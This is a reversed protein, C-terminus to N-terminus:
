GVVEAAGLRGERALGEWARGNPGVHYVSGDSAYVDAWLHFGFERRDHHGQAVRVADRFTACDIERIEPARAAAAGALAAPFADPNLHLTLRVVVAGRPAAITRRPPPVWAAPAPAPAKPVSNKPKRMAPWM